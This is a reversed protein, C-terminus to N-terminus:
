TYNFAFKFTVKQEEIFNVIQKTDEHEAILKEHEERLQEHQMKVEDIEMEYQLELEASSMAADVIVKLAQTIQDEYM